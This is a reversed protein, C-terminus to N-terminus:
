EDDWDDDIDKDQNEPADPDLVFSLEPTPPLPALQWFIARDHRDNVFTKQDSNWWSSDTQWMEPNDPQFANPIVINCFCADTPMTEPTCPIWGSEKPPEFHDPYPTAFKVGRAAEGYLEVALQNFFEGKNMLRYGGDLLQKTEAAQDILDRVEPWNPVRGAGIGCTVTANSEGNTFLIKMEFQIPAHMTTNSLSM